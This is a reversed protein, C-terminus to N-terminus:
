RRGASTASKNDTEGLVTDRQALLALQGEHLRQTPVAAIRLGLDPLEDVLEPLLWRGSSASKQNGLARVCEPNVNM